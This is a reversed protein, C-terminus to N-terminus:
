AGKLRYLRAHINRVSEQYSEFEDGTMVSTVAAIRMAELQAKWTSSWGILRNIDGVTEAISGLREILREVYPRM